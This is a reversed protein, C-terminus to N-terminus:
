KNKHKLLENYLTESIEDWENLDDLDTDYNQIIMYYKNDHNTINLNGYYNGVTEICIIDM